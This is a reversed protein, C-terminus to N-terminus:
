RARGGRLQVALDLDATTAGRAVPRRRGAPRRRLAAPRAGGDRAWAIVELHEQYRLSEIDLEDIVRDPLRRFHRLTRETCDILDQRTM